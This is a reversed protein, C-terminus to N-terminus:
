NAQRRLFAPIALNDDDYNDEVHHQEAPAAYQQQQIKPEARKMVPRQAMPQAQADERIGRGVDALREFIGKKRKAAHEAISEIRGQQVAVQRQAFEPFQDIPPIRPSPRTAVPEPAVEEIFEEDYYEEVPAEEEVMVPTPAPIPAQSVAVRAVLPAPKLPKLAPQPSNYGFVNGSATKSEEADHGAKAEVAL